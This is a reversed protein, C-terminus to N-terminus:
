KSEGPLRSAWRHIAPTDSFSRSLMGAKVEAVEALAAETETIYEVVAGLAKGLEANLIPAVAVLVDDISDRAQEATITM